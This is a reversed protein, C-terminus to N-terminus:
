GMFEKMYYLLSAVAIFRLDQVVFKRNQNLKKVNFLYIIM